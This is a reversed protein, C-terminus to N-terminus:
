RMLLWAFSALGTAVVVGRVREQGILRAVMSGAYGGVMAGGAMVLALPWDVVGSIVFTLAAGANICFGGWNKLGNMRHLNTLGMLTLASLMLFSMGAGFYGGYVGIGLQVLMVLMSPPPLTHPEEAAAGRFTRLLPGQVVFPVTAALVLWPVVGLFQEQPTLVFLLAGALGGGLSPLAFRLTWSRAGVLDRRFGWMGGLFGPWLALASTANASIPPVGLAVLAPFTLLTGGGAITNFAGGAAAVLAAWVLVM